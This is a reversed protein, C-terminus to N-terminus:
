SGVGRADRQVFLDLEELLVELDLLCAKLIPERDAIFDIGVREIGFYRSQNQLREDLVRDFV